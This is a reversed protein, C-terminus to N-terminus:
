MQFLSKSGNWPQCWTTGCSWITHLSRFLLLFMPDFLSDLYYTSIHQHKKRLRPPTLPLSLACMIKHLLNNLQITMFLCSEPYFINKRFIQLSSNSNSHFHYLSCVLQALRCCSPLPPATLGRTPNRPLARPLWLIKAGGSVWVCGCRKESNSFYKARSVPSIGSGSHVLTLKFPLEM